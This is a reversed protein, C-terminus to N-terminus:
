AFLGYEFLINVGTADPRALWTVDRKVVSEETSDEFDSYKASGATIKLSQGDQLIGNKDTNLSISIAEVDQSGLKEIADKYNISDVFFSATIKIVYDSISYEKVGLAYKKGVEVGMAITIKDAQLQEGDALLIDSCAMMLINEDSLEAPTIAVDEPVGYNDLFANLKAKFLSPKGIEFEWTADGIISKTASFQKGDINLIASGIAPAQSNQYSVTDVGATEDLGCISFLNSCEPATSLALGGKDNTRMVTEIDQDLITHCVDSYSDTGGLLTSIRKFEEVTPKPNVTFEETLEIFGNPPTPLTGDKSLFLSSKKTNVYAM